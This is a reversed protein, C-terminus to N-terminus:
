GLGPGGFAPLVLSVSAALVREAGSRYDIRIYNAQGNTSRVVYAVHAKRDLDVLRCRGDVRCASVPVGTAPIEDFETWPLDGDAGQRGIYSRGDSAIEISLGPTPQIAVIDARGRELRVVASGTGELLFLGSTATALRTATLRWHGFNVSLPQPGLVTIRLPGDAAASVVTGGDGFLAAFVPTDRDNLKVDALRGSTSALRKGDWTLPERDIWGIVSQGPLDRSSVVGGASIWTTRSGASFALENRRFVVPGSPAIAYAKELRGDITTHTLKAGPALLWISSSDAQCRLVLVALLTIM